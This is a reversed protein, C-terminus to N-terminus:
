HYRNKNLDYEEKTSFIRSNPTSLYRNKNQDIDDLYAQWIPQLENLQLDFAAEVFTNYKKKDNAAILEIFTNLKDNKYMFVTLLRKSSTGKKNRIIDEIKQSKINNRM